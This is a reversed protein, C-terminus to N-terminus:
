SAAQAEEYKTRAEEANKLLKEVSDDLADNTKGPLLEGGFSMDKLGFKYFGELVTHPGLPLPFQSAPEGKVSYPVFVPMDGDVGADGQEGAQLLPQLWTWDGGGAGGETINPVQAERQARNQPNSTGYGTGDDDIGVLDGRALLPGGRFVLRLRDLTRSVVWPALKLSTSPLIGTAINVPQFPDIIAGLIVSSSHNHLARAYAPADHPFDSPDVHYPSVYVPSHSPSTFRDPRVNGQDVIRRGPYGFHTYITSADPRQAAMPSPQDMDLPSLGPSPWYGVLGDCLNSKHGLMVEFKYEDLTIESKKRIDAYSQTQMVPTALELALGINVLAMPRGVLTSLHDNVGSADHSINQCADALMSWLGLLFKPDSMKQMMDRLQSNLQSDSESLDGEAYYVQWYVKSYISNPLLAEGMSEGAANYIQIGRSRFNIILWGWVPDEYETAPRWSHQVSGSETRDGQAWQATEHHGRWDASNIAYYANLRADQNIRHGLQFFQSAGEDDLSVSNAFDGGEATNQQCALSPGVCPYLNTQTNRSQAPTLMPSVVQGFKDIINLKTFRAQGHIVPRFDREATPEAFTAEGYPTVDFGDDSELLVSLLKQEDQTPTSPSGAALSERTEYPVIHSGRQLTLLHDTLDDLGCVALHLAQLSSKLQRELAELEDDKAATRLSAKTMVREKTVKALLQSLLTVIPWAANPRLISRGSITRKHLNLGDFSSINIDDAIRYEATKGDASRQLAWFRKPLHWYEIEWEVFLARWPQTDSWNIEEPSSYLPPSLLKDVPQGNMTYVWEQMLTDVANRVWGPATWHLAGLNELKKFLEPLRQLSPSGKLEPKMSDRSAANGFFLRM